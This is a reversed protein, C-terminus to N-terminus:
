KIHYKKYLHNRYTEDEAARAIEEYRKEKLLLQNLTAYRETGQKIGQKIGQELGQEMGLEMGQRMGSALLSARDEEYRQRAECQLRINEEATVDFMTVAAEEIYENEKALMKIEEWTQAKFLKAWQYLSYQCDETTALETQTLDLVYLRFKDSYVHHNKVNLMQYQAYFEPYDPFLTFALISIHVTEKIDLYAGGKVPQDFARCLYVLSREVWDHYDAVQMEINIIVNQNLIIKIDLIFTKEDIEEGLIIPNTIEISEIDEPKLYLLASLLGILVKKNRQMVARFLYDNTLRYRVKGAANSLIEQGKKSM